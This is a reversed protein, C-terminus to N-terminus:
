MFLKQKLKFIEIGPKVRFFDIIEQYIYYTTISNNLVFNNATILIDKIDNFNDDDYFQIPFKYNTLERGVKPNVKYLIDVLKLLEDYEKDDIGRFDEAIINCNIGTL